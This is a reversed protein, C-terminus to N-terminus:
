LSDLAVKSSNRYDDIVSLLRKGIAELIAVFYAHIGNQFRKAKVFVLVADVDVRQKM